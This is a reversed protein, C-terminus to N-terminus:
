RTEKENGVEEDENIIRPKVNQIDDKAIEKEEDMTAKKLFDKDQETIKMEKFSEDIIGNRCYRFGITSHDSYLNEFVFEMLDTEKGEKEIFILDLVAANRTSEKNVQRMNLIKALENIKKGGDENNRDINFDGLIFNANEKKLLKGVVKVETLTPTKNIYVFIVSFEHTSQMVTLKYMQMKKGPFQTMTYSIRNQRIDTWRNQLVAIGM